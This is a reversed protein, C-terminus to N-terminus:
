KTNFKEIQILYKKFADIFLKGKLHYGAATFHVKDSQMLGKNHWIQSSGLEGMIGYFDWVALEYQEALELIVERERAVNQNPYKRYYYADNPVTLLIACKPNARLVIQIMKELNNKYTQPNFSAYPVNADNTGVSFAFFDPPMMKLQEEFNKNGLYTYLGAGNVGIANYTCGPLNNLFQFGYIELPIKLNVNRTFQLDLDQIPDVFTIETYGLSDNCTVNSVLIEYEGFQLDFPLDGKNHMIRLKSYPPKVETRDHRFCLNIISDYCVVAAGLVGFDINEPKRGVSKYHQWHNPSSFTYNTPNNTKALDFPFVMGRAGPLSDWNTQLFTRIDHTYIDAQLHSGGIHYFNMQGQHTETM